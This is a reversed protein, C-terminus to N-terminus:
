LFICQPLHEVRGAKLVSIPAHIYKQSDQIYPAAAQKKRSMGNEAM